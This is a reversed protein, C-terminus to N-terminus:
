VLHAHRPAPRRFEGRAAQLGRLGLAGLAATAIDFRSRQEDMFASEPMDATAFHTYVADFSLHPSELVPPLTRRLNDHRFGLRNMGTDIKLHCALRVDAGGRGRGRARAGRRADVRDAHARHTFVGDLHRVSLAGFILIPITVGADRLSSAKRSIRALWCRCAPRNSRWASRRPAMATPTRRSSRSSAPRPGAPSGTGRSCARVAAVNSALAPLSVTAVTPRRMM